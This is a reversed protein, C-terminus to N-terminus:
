IYVSICFLIVENADTPILIVARASAVCAKACTSISKCVAKELPMEAATDSILKVSVDNDFASRAKAETIVSKSVDNVVSNLVATDVIFVDSTDRVVASEAKAVDM